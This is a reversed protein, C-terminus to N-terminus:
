VGTVGLKLDQDNRTTVAKARECPPTDLDFKDIIFELYKRLGSLKPM